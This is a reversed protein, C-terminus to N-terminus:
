PADESTYWKRRGRGAAAGRSAPEKGDLRQGTWWVKQRRADDVSVGMDTLADLLEDARSYDRRERHEQRETLLRLVKAEDIPWENTGAARSWEKEMWPQADPQARQARPERDQARSARSADGRQRSEQYDPRVNIFRGDLETGTMYEIAHSAAHETEFQVIGHGKSNGDRDESVSAYVVPYDDRRFHDKLTTWDTGWDLNEVFVRTGEFNTRFEPAGEQRERRLDPPRRSPAPRYEEPNVGADKMEARIRDSTEFDRQRKAAVWQELLEEMEKSLPPLDWAGEQRERRLDPPRRSPATFRSDSPRRSPAPRYEEPSVGADEMEARIRDSTEFDRRRKAAVWQELMEEMETSLPPLDWSERGRFREAVRERPARREPKRRPLSLLRPPPMRLRAHRLAPGAAPGPRAVQFAEAKAVLRPHEHLVRCDVLSLLLAGLMIYM